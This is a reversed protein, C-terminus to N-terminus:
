PIIIHSYGVVALQSTYSNSGMTKVRIAFIASKIGIHMMTTKKVNQVYSMVKIFHRIVNKAYLM